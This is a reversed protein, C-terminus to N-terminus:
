EDKAGECIVEVTAAVIRLSPVDDIDLFVYEKYPHDSPVQEYEIALAASMFETQSIELCVDSIEGAGDDLVRVVDGFVFEISSENWARVHVKLQAGEKTYGEIEGDAFGINCQLSQRSM